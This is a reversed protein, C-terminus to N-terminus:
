VDGNKVYRSVQDSHMPRVPPTGPRFPSNRANTMSAQTSIRPVSPEPFMFPPRPPPHISEKSQHADIHTGYTSPRQRRSPSTVISSNVFETSPPQHHTPLSQPWSHASPLQPPSISYVSQTDEPSGPRSPGQIEISIKSTGQAHQIVAPRTTTDIDHRAPTNPRSFPRRFPSPSPSPSPSSPRSHRRSSVNFQRGAERSGTWNVPRVSGSRLSSASSHPSGRPLPAAPLRPSGQPSPARSSLTQPLSPTRRIIDEMPISQEANSSGSTIRGSPADVPVGNFAQSACIVVREEGEWLTGTSSPGGTGSGGKTDKEDSTQFYRSGLKRLGRLIRLWVLLCRLVFAKLNYGVSGHSSQIGRLFASLALKASSVM